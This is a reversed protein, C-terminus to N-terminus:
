STPQGGLGPSREANTVGIEEVGKADVRYRKNYKLGHISKVKDFAILAEMKAEDALKGNLMSIWINKGNYKVPAKAVQAIVGSTPGPMKKIAIPQLTDTDSGFCLTVVALTGETAEMDKADHITIVKCHTLSPFYKPM